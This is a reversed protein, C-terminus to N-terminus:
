ITNNFKYYKTNSQNYPTTEYNINQNQYTYNPESSKLKSETEAKIPNFTINYKQDYESRIMNERNKTNKRICSM